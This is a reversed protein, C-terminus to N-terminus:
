GPLIASPKIKPYIHPARIFFVLSISGKRGEWFKAPSLHPSISQKIGNGGGEKKKKRKIKIEKYRAEVDNLSKLLSNLM